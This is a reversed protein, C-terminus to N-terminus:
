LLRKELVKQAMINTSGTGCRVHMLVSRWMSYSHRSLLSLFDANEGNRSAEQHLVPVLLHTCTHTLENLKGVPNLPGSGVGLERSAVGFPQHNRLYWFEGDRRCVVWVTPPSKLPLVGVGLGFNAFFSRADWM